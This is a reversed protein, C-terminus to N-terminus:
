KCILDGIPKGTTTLISVKGDKYNITYIYHTSTRHEFEDELRKIEYQVLRNKSRPIPVLKGMNRYYLTEECDSDIQIKIVMINQCLKKAM